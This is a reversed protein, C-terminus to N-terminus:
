EKNLLEDVQEQIGRISDMFDESEQEIYKDINADFMRKYATGRKWFFERVSESKRVKEDDEYSVTFEQIPLTIDQLISELVKILDAELKKEAKERIIGQIDKLTKM